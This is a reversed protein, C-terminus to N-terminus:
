SFAPFTKASNWVRLFDYAAQVTGAYAGVSIGVSAITALPNRALAVPYWVQGPARSYYYDVNTSSNVKVGLYIPMAAGPDYPPTSISETGPGTDTPGTFTKVNILNSGNFQIYAGQFRGPTAVGAFLGVYKYNDWLTAETIKCIATFPPTASLYRGVQVADNDAVYYHGPITTHAAETDPSGMATLGTLSSTNFEFATDPAGFQQFIPDLSNADLLNLPDGNGDVHDANWDSPRTITTDAGDDQPNEFEHKVTVV